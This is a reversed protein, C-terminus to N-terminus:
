PAPIAEAPSTSDAPKDKQITSIESVDVGYDFALQRIFKAQEAKAKMAERWDIGRAGFAEDYTSLGASVDAIQAASNRGVDVNPARPARISTVYWDDPAGQLEPVNDKAWGIVYSWIREGASAMVAHRSRFWVASMDLAGRYVTGQMTEPYALVYPIGVGACVKETLQRWYERMNVGPREIAFQSFEDGHKLVKTESGFVAQYHTQLEALSDTPTRGGRLDKASVEGTATKIINSVASAQKAAQMELKQLDDLDHLDNIVATAFPLGRIQGPRNPEFIHCVFAEPIGSVGELRGRTKETGIYYRLPRGNRPDLEIGDVVDPSQRLTEPTAVQQAEILQLRPFGSDGRTFVIFSEGDVFWGRAALGMLTGLGQKSAIDPLKSWADFWKKAAQNWVPDSSAPQIQFNAGVVYCEFLDALRNMTGNNQEFYRTKRVLAQRTASSIDFRAATYKTDLHSRSYSTEAGEYRAFPALLRSIIKPM